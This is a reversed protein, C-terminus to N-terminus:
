AIKKIMCLDKEDITFDKIKHDFLYEVKWQCTPWGLSTKVNRIDIVLVPINIPWDASLDLRKSLSSYYAPNYTGEKKPNKDELKDFAIQVLDGKTFNFNM